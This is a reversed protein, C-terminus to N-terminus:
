IATQRVFSKIVQTPEITPTELHTRTIVDTIAKIQERVSTSSIIESKQDHVRTVLITYTRLKTTTTTITELLTKTIVTPVSITAAAVSDDISQSSSLTESLDTAVPKTPLRRRMVIMKRKLPKKSESSTTTPGLAGDYEKISEENTATTTSPLRTRRIPVVIRRRTPKIQKSADSSEKLAM